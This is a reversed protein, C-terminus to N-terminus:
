LDVEVLDIQFSLDISPVEGLITFVAQGMRNESLLAQIGANDMSGLLQVDPAINVQMHETLGLIFAAQSYSQIGHYQEGATWSDPALSVQRTMVRSKGSWTAREIPTVGGGEIVTHDIYQRLGLLLQQVTEGEIGNIPYAGIQSAGGQQMLADILANFNPAVVESILRDFVSKNEQVTGELPNAAAVVGFQAIQEPTIKHQTLVTQLENM